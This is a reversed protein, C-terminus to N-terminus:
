SIRLKLVWNFLKIKATLWVGNNDKNIEKIEGILVKKPINNMLESTLVKDGVKINDNTNIGKLYITNKEKIM